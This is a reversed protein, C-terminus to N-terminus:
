LRGEFGDKSNDEIMDEIKDRFTNDPADENEM